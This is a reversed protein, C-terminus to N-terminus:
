FGKLISEITKLGSTTLFYGLHGGYSFVKARDGFTRDVWEWDQNRVLFDGKTHLLFVDSNKGLLAELQRLDARDFLDGVPLGPQTRHDRVFPTLVSEVYRSFTESPAITGYRNFIPHSGILRLVGALDDHFIKGIFHYIFKDMGAWPKNEAACKQEFVNLPYGLVPNMSNSSRGESSLFFNDVVAVGYRLDIPPNALIARRIGILKKREDVDKLHAVALAGLSYGIVHVNRVKAGTRRKFDDIAKALWDYMVEADDMTVGVFPDPSVLKAFAESFLSDVALFHYGVSDRLLEGLRLTMNSRHTGGVGPVIVVLDTRRRLVYGYAYPANRGESTVLSGYGFNESTPAFTQTFATALAESNKIPFLSNDIWEIAVASSLKLLGVLIQIGIFIQSKGRM